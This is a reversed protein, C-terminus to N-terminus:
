LGRQAGVKVRQNESGVLDPHVEPGLVGGSHPSLTALAKRPRGPMTRAAWGKQPRNGQGGGADERGRGARPCIM